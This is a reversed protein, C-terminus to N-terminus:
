PKIDRHIVNHSHIFDLGIILDRMIRQIDTENFFKKNELCTEFKMHEDEWSMIEGFCAYDMILILKDDKESDIVEHLKIISGSEHQSSGLRAMIEIEKLTDLYANKVVM